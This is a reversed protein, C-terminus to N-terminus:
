VIDKQTTKSLINQSESKLNSIFDFAEKVSLSNIDVSSLKSLINFCNQDLIYESVNYKTMSSGDIIKISYPLYNLLELYKNLSNQPFGCKQVSSNLNTLKLGLLENIKRADDDLFIYFMGSKFLYLDSSNESKLNQYMTFLKSM